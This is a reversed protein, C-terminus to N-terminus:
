FFRCLCIFLFLPNILYFSSPHYVHFYLFLSVYSHYHCNSLCFNVATSATPYNSPFLTFGGPLFYFLLPSIVPQSLWVFLCWSSYDEKVTKREKWGEMRKGQVMLRGRDICREGSKKREKVYNTLTVSISFMKSIVSIVSVSAWVMWALSLVLVGSEWGWVLM